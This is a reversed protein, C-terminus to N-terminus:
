SIPIRLHASKNNKEISGWHPINRCISENHAIDITKQSLSPSYNRVPIM